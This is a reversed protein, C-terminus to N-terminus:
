DNRMKKTLRDRHAILDAAANIEEARADMYETIAISIIGNISEGTIYSLAKIKDYKEPDIYLSYRTTKAMTVGRIKQKFKM